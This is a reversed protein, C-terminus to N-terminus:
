VASFGLGAAFSAAGLFAGPGLSFFIFVRLLLLRAEAQYNPLSLSSPTAAEILCLSHSGLSNIESHFTDLFADTPLEYSLRWELSLLLLENVKGLHFVQCLEAVPAYITGIYASDIRWHTTSYDKDSVIQEEFAVLLM